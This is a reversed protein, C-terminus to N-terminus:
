TPDPPTLRPRVQQIRGWPRARRTAQSRSPLLAASLCAVARSLAVHVYVHTPTSMSMPTPMSTAWRQLIRRSYDHPCPCPHSCPRPGGKCSGALTTTHVHAHTHAHVHAHVHGVEAPDPSLLPCPCPHSCPRPGGKCSGALTTTSIRRRTVPVASPAHRRSPARTPGKAPPGM